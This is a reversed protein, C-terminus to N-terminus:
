AILATLAAIAMGEDMEEIGVALISRDAYSIVSDPVVSGDAAKKVSLKNAAAIDTVIAKHALKAIEPTYGQTM